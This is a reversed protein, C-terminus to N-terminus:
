GVRQGLAEALDEGAQQRGSSPAAIGRHHFPLHGVEPELAGLVSVPWLRGAVWGVGDTDGRMVAGHGRVLGVLCRSGLDGTNGSSRLEAEAM